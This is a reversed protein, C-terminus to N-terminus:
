AASLSPSALPSGSACAQGAAGWPSCDEDEPPGQSAASSGEVGGEEEGGGASSSSLGDGPARGERLAAVADDLFARKVCVTPYSLLRMVFQRDSVTVTDSEFEALQRPSVPPLSLSPETPM